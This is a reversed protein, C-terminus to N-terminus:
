VADELIEIIEFYEDFKDVLRWTYYTNKSGDEDDMDSLKVARASFRLIKYEDARTDYYYNPFEKEGNGVPRQMALFRTGVKLDKISM